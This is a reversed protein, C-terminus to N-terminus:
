GGEAKRWPHGWRLLLSNTVVTVSSFAMFAGSVGPSLAVGWLPLLAGAAIPIGLTNYAFAWFLNQRIKALTAKGLTLAQPVQGLRDGMLVIQATEAAVETGGQLAIGVDAQALAPADNIGDGVMAVCQGQSQLEAIVAAKQAPLVEAHIQAPRLGLKQGIAQATASRDGTVLRLELGMQRLQQVTDLADARLPDQVAILGLTQSKQALFIVTKGFKALDEAKQVLDLPVTAGRQALWPLNGLVTPVGEVTAAIGFGPETHFETASLLPLNAAQAAAQIAHALPHRTGRELSAALQLLRDPTLSHPTPSDIAASQATAPATIPNEIAVPEITGSSLLLDTVEPKGTTLTGTKDLVLTTLRDLQELVEGGRILLGQEAGLSLGVLLATPTALGLACPCAIVLVAIALKLSLLLPSTVLDPNAAATVGLNLGLDLGTSLDLGMDMGIAGMEMAMSGHDMGQLWAGHQTLVEPWLRTGVLGWFGFAVAAITMVGYTFYGAVTDALRQIPAKRGQAAEVLQIIQALTTEQGVQTAELVLVGSLNLTGASVMEGSQKLVPLSEGTLMSEDVTGQGAIVKGDVPFKEGPLIRLLEGVRLRDTAVEVVKANLLLEAMKPDLVDLNEPNGTVLRALTPQLGLLKRLSASARHRARQELTRGLLIFGLLMVPEDFFCEWGLAPFVLAVCSALYASWAGLAVLTNMTPIGHRLGQFGNTWIPRAPFALTLTALAWHLGIADFGPLTFGFTHELHGISSLALLAAAIALDRSQQQLAAATVERSSLREPASRPRDRRQSPFGVATLSEALTDGDTEGPAYDVTAVATVLNVSASLVGPQQTLRKEVARVCGACKMGDVELALTQALTQPQSQPPPAIPDAHSEPQPTPQPLPSSVLPAM